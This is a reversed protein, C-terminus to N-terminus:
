FVKAAIEAGSRSEVLRLGLFRARVGRYFGPAGKRKLRWAGEPRFIVEMELRGTRLASELGLEDMGEPLRGEVVLLAILPHGAADQQRPEGHTLAIGGGDIFPTVVFRYGANTHEPRVIGLTQEGISASFAHGDLTRREARLREECEARTAEEECHGVYRELFSPLSDVLRAHDHLAAFRADARATGATLALLAIPALLRITM